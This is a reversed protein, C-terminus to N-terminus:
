RSCTKQNQTAHGFGNRKTHTKMKKIIITFLPIQMSITTSKKIMNYKRGYATQVNNRLLFSKKQMQKMKMTFYRCMKVHYNEFGVGLAQPFLDSPDLM